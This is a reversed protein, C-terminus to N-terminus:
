AKIGYLAFSSYESFNAASANTLTITTIASTSRWNSSIFFAFGSSNNDYGCISRTTKFKNTNAYDLIDVVSANFINTDTSPPIPDAFIAFAQTAAGGSNVSGVRGDFEHWSYNTTTDSNFIMKGYTQTSVSKCLIRLQLHKYTQPISSFTITSQGGVGATLTQISEFDGIAAVTTSSAGLGYNRLSSGGFTALVPM